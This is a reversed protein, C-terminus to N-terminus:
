NVTGLLHSAILLEKFPVVHNTRFDQAMDAYGLRAFVIGAAWMALEDPYADAIWSSYTAMAVVPNRYYFAAIAGTAYQPWIKLTDGILTYVSQRRNGDNDYLDDAEHWDLEEVPASTVSDLCHVLKISRLQPLLTSVNSFAYFQATSSPTYFLPHEVLDRPFFDVHHARLTASRIAAVTTSAVDPRRTQAVVLEEIEAYTTM